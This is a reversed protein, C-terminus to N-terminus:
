TTIFCNFGKSKLDDRMREANAKVGFAGAQIKYLGNVLRIYASEYIGGLAKIKALM